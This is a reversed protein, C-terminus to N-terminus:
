ECVVGDGDGDRMHPYARHGRAVPALGHRRAERCTIRGDGNDDWLRLAAQGGAAAPAGSAAGEACATEQMAPSACAALVRELADAERRDITLGYKSRVQVVTHAFWCRNRPPMWEAADHDRKRQRNLGPSALTLNLLDAAFRRRTAADARCLGSDHAESRAVIHEIDTQRRHQFCQATYPSFIKGLRAIIQPEVAQPYRYDGAEYRACRHEPAVTLGRWTEAAAVPCAAALWLGCCAALRGNM